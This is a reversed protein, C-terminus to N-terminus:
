AIIINQLAIILDNSILMYFIDDHSRYISMVTDSDLALIQCTLSNFDRPLHKVDSM